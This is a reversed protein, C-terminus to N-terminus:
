PSSVDRGGICLISEISIHPTLLGAFFWSSAAKGHPIHNQRLAMQEEAWATLNKADEVTLLSVWILEVQFIKTMFWALNSRPLSVERDFTIVIHCSCTLSINRLVVVPVSYDYFVIITSAVQLRSSVSSISRHREFFMGRAYRATEVQELQKTIERISSTISARPTSM